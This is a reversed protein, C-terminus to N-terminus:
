RNKRGKGINSSKYTPTLAHCSPCLLQLNEPTTNLYNGDIHHVELPVKNTHPNLECWGCKQCKNDYKKILYRRVYGSVKGDKKLGKEQNRIWREIYEEYEYDRHCRSSCFKTQHKKLKKKCKLCYRLENDKPKKSNLLPSCELCYKRRHLFRRKGTNDKFTKPFGKGCNGCIKISINESIKDKTLKEIYKQNTANCPRLPSCNLCYIRKHLYHRKGAEDFFHNPFEEGCKKCIKKLVM